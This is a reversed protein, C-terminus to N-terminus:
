RSPKQTVHGTQTPWLHLYSAAGIYAMQILALMILVAAWNFITYKRLAIKSNASIQVALDHFYEDSVLLEPNTAYRERFKQAYTSTEYEAVDGFFLLSKDRDPDRHFVNLKLRPLFSFLSLLAALAFLLLAAFGSQRISDSLPRESALLNALALLWASAFALLAANKTEAFKLFDVTRSLTDALGKGLAERQKEADM